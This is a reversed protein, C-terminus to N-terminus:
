TRFNVFNVPDLFCFFRGTAAAPLLGCSRIGPITPAPVRTKMRGAM